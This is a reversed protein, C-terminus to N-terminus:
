AAPASAASVAPLGFRRCIFRAIAPADNLPLIPHRGALLRDDTAVALVANDRDAILGEPRPFRAVEIKPHSGRKFGEVLVLDCPALKAVLEELLPEPEERLEHMLAWRQGSAVLVEHAGAMRHRHSDKGSHDIDFAHHAHKITSVRLGQATLEKLLAEVLTTKGSNKWGIIGLIKQVTM